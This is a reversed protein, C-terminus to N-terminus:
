KKYTAEPSGHPPWRDPPVHNGLQSEIEREVKATKLSHKDMELKRLATAIKLLVLIEKSSHPMLIGMKKETAMIEQVRREQIVFAYKLACEADVDKVARHLEKWVPRGTEVIKVADTLGEENLSEVVMEITPPEKWDPDTKHMRERITRALPRLYTFWTELSLDHMEGQPNLDFVWKAVRRMSQGAALKRVIQPFCVLRRIKATFLRERAFRPQNKPLM